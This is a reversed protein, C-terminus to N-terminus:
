DLSDASILGTVRSRHTYDRLNTLATREAPFSKRLLRVEREIQTLIAPQMIDDFVCLDRYAAFDQGAPM